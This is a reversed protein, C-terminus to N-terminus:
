RKKMKVDLARTRPIFRTNVHELDEILDSIDVVDVMAITM